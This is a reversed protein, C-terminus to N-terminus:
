AVRFHVSALSVYTNNGVQLQVNGNAFILIYGAPTPSGDVVPIRVTDTPPRYGAPLTFMPAAVTGAKVSGALYVRGREKYFSANPEGGGFNVWGNQFAPQGAAGIVRLTEVPTLKPDTVTANGLMVTTISSEGFLTTPDPVWSQELRRQLNALPLDDLRVKRDQAALELAAIRAELEAPTSV